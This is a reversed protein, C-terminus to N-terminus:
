LFEPDLPPFQDYNNDDNGDGKPDKPKSPKAAEPTAVPTSCYKLGNEHIWVGWMGKEKMILGKCFECLAYDRNNVTSSM